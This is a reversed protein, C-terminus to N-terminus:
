AFAYPDSVMGACPSGAFVDAAAQAGTGDVGLAAFVAYVLGQVGLLAASLRYVHQTAKRRNALRPRSWATWAVAVVAGLALSVLVRLLYLRLAAAGAVYGYMSSVEAEFLACAASHPVGGEGESSGARMWRAYEVYLTLLIAPTVVAYFAHLLPLLVIGAWDLAPGAGADEGAAAKRRKSMFTSTGIAWALFITFAPRALDALSEELQSMPRRDSRPPKRRLSNTEPSPNGADAV